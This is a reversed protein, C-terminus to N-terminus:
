IFNDQRRGGAIRLTGVTGDLKTNPPAKKCSAPMANEGLHILM